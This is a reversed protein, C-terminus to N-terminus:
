LRPYLGAGKMIVPVVEEWSIAMIHFGSLGKINERIFKIQESCISIGEAKQDEANELRSVIEEPVSIGPVCDHMYKAARWGRLPTVGALIYAREHLGRAVCIEMFKAFRELDFICQTQIFEAGANIKKELRDVQYLFPDAFPNAVAGVFFRPEHEKIQEGSFFLKEDRMRRTLQILQISDIDYVNKATPHNGFVQHDGSLCLVNKIGLSYAGLLDSQIAIRNRDRCTIQIVPEIGSGMIHVAASISSMRVVASQCDTINAADVYDRLMETHAIIKEPSSHKPPGIEATVAQRGSKLIQELTSDGTKIM